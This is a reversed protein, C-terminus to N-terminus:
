REESAVIEWMVEQRGRERPGLHTVLDEEVAEHWHAAPSSFPGPIGAADGIPPLSLASIESESLPEFSAMSTITRISPQPHELPPPWERLSPSRARNEKQSSSTLPPSLVADKSDKVKDKPLGENFRNSLPKM